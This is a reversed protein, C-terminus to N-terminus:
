GFFSETVLKYKANNRTCYETAAKLKIMNTIYSKLKFNYNKLVKSNNSKPKQPEQLMSKPKVEVIWREVINNNKIFIEFDPYYFHKKNDMPSMYPIELCESSWQVININDDCFNCFKLELSSRYIIKKIDGKYKQTNKPLFKGQKFSKSFENSYPGLAKIISM